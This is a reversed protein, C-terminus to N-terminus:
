GNFYCFLVNSALKGKPRSNKAYFETLISLAETSFYTRRRRRRKQQPDTLKCASESVDPSLNESVSPTSSVDHNDGDDNNNKVQIYRYDGIISLTGGPFDSGNDMM